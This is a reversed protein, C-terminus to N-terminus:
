LERSAAVALQSGKGVVASWARAFAGPRARLRALADDRHAIEDAVRVARDLDDNIIFHYYPVELAHELERIATQSRKAFETEFERDSEYRRKFRERWTTYDPPLIFLAIVDQSLAKYEAVGQVDLDTMAIKDQDHISSLAVASTGYVTGHVFKAEIFENAAVMRAAEDLSIFHYDVGNTEHIGNNARPPRTTHSVIDRFDDSQLLRKKITDKGAASIGALLVIKTSQVLTVAYPPTKYNGIQQELTM